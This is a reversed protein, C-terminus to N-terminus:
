WGYNKKEQGGIKGEPEFLGQWGNEISRNISDISKKEGWKLCKALQAKRTSPTLKHRMEKRYAEWADWTKMFEYSPFPLTVPSPPPAIPTPDPPKPSSNTTGKEPWHNSTKQTIERTHANDTTTEPIIHNTVEVQDLKQYIGSLLKYLLAENITYWTVRDQDTYYWVACNNKAEDYKDGYLDKNKKGCKFAFNELGTRFEKASVGLEESWSDGAKYMAHDCPEIFKYFKGSRKWWYIVQQLIITGIVSKGIPRLAPRYSVMEKDGALIEIIDVNMQGGM